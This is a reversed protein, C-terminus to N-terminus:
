PRAPAAGGFSENVHGSSSWYHLHHLTKKGLLGLLPVMPTADEENDLADVHLHSGKSSVLVVVIFSSLPPSLLPGFTVKTVTVFVVVLTVHSCFDFFNTAIWLGIGAVVSRRM